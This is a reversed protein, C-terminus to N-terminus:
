NASLPKIISMKFLNSSQNVSKRSDLEEAVSNFYWKM